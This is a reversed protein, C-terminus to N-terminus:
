DGWVASRLEGIAQGNLLVTEGGWAYVSPHHFVFTLLKKELPKAQVSAEQLMARLAARGVFDAAKNEKVGVMLGAQLPTEDPGLEAGWARRGAEIRLADIAYYAADRPGLDKGAEHLALYVHRAMEVPVYLEYGPGDIYSMRVARVRAHTLDIERTHAFKLGAPSVDDPSVRSMLELARPGMLSLVSWLPSV